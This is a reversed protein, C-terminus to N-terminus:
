MADRSRYSASQRGAVPFQPDTLLDSIQAQHRQEHLGLIHLLQPVNQTGLLPHQRIMKAYDLNPNAALLAETGEFSSRLEDLLEGASRGRRPTAADAARAPILAYRLFFDRVGNPIFMNLFNFPTELLPLMCKPIFFVTANFDAFSRYLVLRRGAQTREILEAIDARAVKESLILHDVVEGVSWKDPAPSYDMQAQSLGQVLAVSRARISRFRELEAKIM